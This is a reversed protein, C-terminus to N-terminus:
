FKALRRNMKRQEDTAFLWSCVMCRWGFIFFTWRNHTVKIKVNDSDAGCLPCMEVM